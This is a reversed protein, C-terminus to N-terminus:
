LELLPLRTYGDRKLAINQLQCYQLCRTKLSSKFEVIKNREVIYSNDKEYIKFPGIELTTEILRKLQM